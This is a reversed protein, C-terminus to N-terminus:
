LFQHPTFVSPSLCEAMTLGAPLGAPNVIASHIADAYYELRAFEIYGTELAGDVTQANVQAMKFSQSRAQLQDHPSHASRPRRVILFTDHTSYGPNDKSMAILNIIHSDVIDHGDRYGSRGEKVVPTLFHSTRLSSIWFAVRPAASNMCHLFCKLYKAASM